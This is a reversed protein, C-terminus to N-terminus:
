FNRWKCPCWFESLLSIRLINQILCCFLYLDNFSIRFLTIKFICKNIKKCFCDKQKWINTYWLPYITFLILMCYSYLPPNTCADVGSHERTYLCYLHIVKKKLNCHTSSIHCGMYVCQLWQLSSPSTWKGVTKWTKIAMHKGELSCTQGVAGFLGWWWVTQKSMHYMCWSEWISRKNGGNRKLERENQDPTWWRLRSQRGAQYRHRWQPNGGRESRSQETQRM